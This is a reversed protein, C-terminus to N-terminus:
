YVVKLVRKGDGTPLLSNRHNWGIMWGVGIRLEILVWLVVGKPPQYILFVYLCSFVTL